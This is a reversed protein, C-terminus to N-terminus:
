RLGSATPAPRRVGIRDVLTEMAHLLQHRIPYRDTLKHGVMVPNM